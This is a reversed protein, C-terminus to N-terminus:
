VRRGELARTVRVQRVPPRSRRRPQTAVVPRTVAAAPTVPAIPTVPAVRLAPRETTPTDWAAEATEDPLDVPAPVPLAPPVIPSTLRPNSLEAPAAYADLLARWCRAYRWEVYARAADSPAARWQAYIVQVQEDLSSLYPACRAVDCIPDVALPDAFVLREVPAQTADLLFADQREICVERPWAQGTQLYDALLGATAALALRWACARATYYHDFAYREVAGPRTYLVQYAYGHFSAPDPTLSRAGSAAALSPLSPYRDTAIYAPEMAERAEEKEAAACAGGM